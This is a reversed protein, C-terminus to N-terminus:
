NYMNEISKLAKSLYRYVEKASSREVANLQLCLEMAHHLIEDIEDKIEVNPIDGDLILQEVKSQSM